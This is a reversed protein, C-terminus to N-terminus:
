DLQRSASNVRDPATPDYRGRTVTFVFDDAYSNGAAKVMAPSFPRFPASDLLAQRSVTKMLGTSEGVTVVLDSLTGDSHVTCHISVKGFWLSSENTKMERYWIPQLVERTYRKYNVVEVNTSTSNVSPEICGKAPVTADGFLPLGALLLAAMTLRVMVMFYDAKQAMTKKELLTIV